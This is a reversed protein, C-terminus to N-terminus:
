SAASHGLNLEFEVAFLDLGVRALRDPLHRFTLAAFDRMKAIRGLRVVPGSPLQRAQMTSTSPSRTSAAEQLRVGVTPMFTFIPSGV